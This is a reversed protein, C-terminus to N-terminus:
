PRAEQMHLFEEATIAHFQLRDGLQFRTPPNHDVHFLNWPTRAIVNWGGPSAMQYISTISNAIAVSGAEVRTRPTSRRPVHIRKDLTGAFTNGPSFFFAYLTLPSTTHLYIVEDTSLGCQRAVDELDAGYEGGYCAPVEIIRHSSVTISVGKQLLAELHHTLQQRPLGAGSIFTMPQYHVAVSTFAPVIDMVGTIHQDTLMKTVAHVIQSTDDNVEQGLRILLCREGIPEIQWDSIMRSTSQITQAQMM